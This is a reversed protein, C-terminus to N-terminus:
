NLRFLIERGLSVFYAIGQSIMSFFLMLIFIFVLMAFASAIMFLLTKSFTYQHLMMMGMFILIGIWIFTLSNFFVYFTGEQGTVGHSLIIMPIQLLVYPTLAYCTCMYIEGLKGKGDFLTTVGWNCVCFIFLPLLISAIQILVNMKNWNVDLFLFSTWQLKWVHTLVTFLLIFNAAAYSGRKEHTLDWFGDAPHFVVHLSYKLTQLFHIYTQKQGFKQLKTVVYSM